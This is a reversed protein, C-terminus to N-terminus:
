FGDDSEGPQAQELENGSVVVAEEGLVVAEHIDEEDVDFIDVDYGSGQAAAIRKVLADVAEPASEVKVETQTPAEAGHLRGMQALVRQARDFYELQSGHNKDTAQDYVAELM